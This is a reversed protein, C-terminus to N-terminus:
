IKLRFRPVLRRKHESYENMHEIKSDICDDGSSGEVIYKDLMAYTFGIREEDSGEALGDVPTKCVLEKPLGLYEGLKHLETVTFDIIPEFDAAGDGWKTLWGIYEESKNTTGVVRWGNGMSQAISYLVTMRIRPAINIYSPMTLEIDKGTNNPYNHISKFGYDVREVLGKMADKINVVMYPIDLLEVVKYSDEIDNQEGNPMLVGMVNEKGLCEVMLKAVITSDKGGSIGIVAGRVGNKECSRRMDSILGKIDQLKADRYEQNNLPCYKGANHFVMEDNTGMMHGKPHMCIGCPIGTRWHECFNCTRVVEM